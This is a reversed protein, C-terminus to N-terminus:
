MIQSTARVGTKINPELILQLIEGQAGDLVALCQELGAAVVGDQGQDALLWALALWVEVEELAVMDLDAAAPGTCPVSLFRPFLWLQKLNYM